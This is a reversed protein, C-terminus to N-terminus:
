SDELEMEKLMESILKSALEERIKEEELTWGRPVFAKFFRSGHKDSGYSCGTHLYEPADLSGDLDLWFGCTTIDTTKQDMNCYLPTRGYAYQFCPNAKISDSM